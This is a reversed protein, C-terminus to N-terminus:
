QMQMIRRGQWRQSTAQWSANMQLISEGIAKGDVQIRGQACLQSQILCAPM